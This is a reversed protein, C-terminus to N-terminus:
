YGGFPSSYDAPARNITIRGARISRAVKEITEEDKGLVYGSLGDITDNEIEIAEDVTDYTIVSMVPKFIEEQAITMDNTVDTFITPKVYYGKDLGEPKGLGGALLTAGEEIGKEIYYQVRDYQQQSIVPGVRASKDDPRGVKFKTILEKLADYFEDKKSAPIITRSALSCVQGSNFIFNTLAINAAENMDIDDLIIMPSKACIELAVKQITDAANKSIKTGTPGSGTFSILDIDPHSSIGNGVVEGTGNVLNFVGKPVGADHAVEALLIASFPTLVSPKLIVPCGAAFASAIKIATQNTPFNWPTILGCVGIAEKVIISPGRKEEFTFTKLEEIAQKYHHFCMQFHVKESLFASTGLEATIIEAFESKKDEYAKLINELLTIREERTTASFAPFAAKAAAVAKNLDEETGDVVQGFVEETDPNIVDIMTNGTSKVWEGNIYHQDCVRM